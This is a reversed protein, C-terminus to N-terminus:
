MPASLMVPKKTEYRAIPVSSHLSDLCMGTWGPDEVRSHLATIVSFFNALSLEMNSSWTDIIFSMKLEVPM